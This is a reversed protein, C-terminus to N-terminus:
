VVDPLLSTPSLLLLPVCLHQTEFLTCLRCIPESVLVDAAGHVNGPYIGQPTKVERYTVDRFLFVFLLVLCVSMFICLCCLSCAHFRHVCMCLDSPSAMHLNRTCHHHNVKGLRCCLDPRTNADAPASHAESPLNTWLMHEGAARLRKQKRKKIRKKKM